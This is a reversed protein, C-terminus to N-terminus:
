PAAELRDYGKSRYVAFSVAWSVIFIAVIGYGADALRRTVASGLAGAAGTVVVYDDNM